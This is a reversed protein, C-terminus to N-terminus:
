RGLDDLIYDLLAAGADSATTVDSREIHLGSAPNIAQLRLVDGDVHRNPFLGAFGYGAEDLHTGALETRADELALDIYLVDIGDAFRAARAAAVQDVVDYGAAM